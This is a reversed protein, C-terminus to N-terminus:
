ITPTLYVTDSRKEGWYTVDNVHKSQNKSVRKTNKTKQVVCCCLCCSLWFKSFVCVCLEVISMSTGEQYIVFSSLWMSTGLALKVVSNMSFLASYYSDTSYKGRNTRKPLM